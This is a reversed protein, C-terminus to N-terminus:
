FTLRYKQYRVRVLINYEIFQFSQKLYVKSFEGEGDGTKGEGKVCIRWLSGPGSCCCCDPCCFFWPSGTFATMWLPSRALWTWISPDEWGGFRWMPKVRLSSYMHDLKAGELSGPKALHHDIIDEAPFLNCSWKIHPWLSSTISRLHSGVTIRIFVNVYQSYSTKTLPTRAAHCQAAKLDPFGNLKQDMNWRWRAHSFNFCSLGFLVSIIALPFPSLSM